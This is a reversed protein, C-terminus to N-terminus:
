PLPLAEEQLVPCSANLPIAGDLEEMALDREWPELAEVPMTLNTDPDCPLWAASPFAASAAAERCADPQVVYCAPGQGAAGERKSVGGGCGSQGTQATGSEGTSTCACPGHQHIWSFFTDLRVFVGPWGRRACGSGWSVLGVLRHQAADPPIVDHPRLIVPGGSDGSCADATGDGACFMVGSYVRGAYICPVDCADHPVVPIRLQRLRNPFPRDPSLPPPGMGEGNSYGWGVVELPLGTTFEVDGPQVIGGVPRAHAASATLELVAVDNCFTRPQYGEHRTARAVRLVDFSGPQQTYLEGLGCWLTPSAVGGPLSICYAATIAM